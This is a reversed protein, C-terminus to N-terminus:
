HEKRLSELLDAMELSGLSGQACCREDWHGVGDPEVGQGSLIVPLPDRVRRGKSALVAGDVALALRCPKIADMVSAMPALVRHDLSELAWVKNAAGGYRGGPYRSEVYLIVHDHDQLAKVIGAIRFPPRKGDMEEWPSAMEVMDIGVYKAFGRALMGDAILGGTECPGAQLGGGALLPSGGGWPWLANAPNEGLDVRVENVPHNSCVEATAEVFHRVWKQRRYFPASALLDDGELEQPPVSRVGEVHKDHVVVLAQGPGTAVMKVHLDAVAEEMSEVLERTEKFSIGPVTSGVLRNGDLTVLDARFVWAAGTTDVDAALAELPGRWMDRLTSESMGLCRGLFAESRADEAARGTQILGGRGTVALGTAISCRAVEMPTRQQLADSPRDAM